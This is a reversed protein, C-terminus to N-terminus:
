LVQKCIPCTGEFIKKSKNNVKIWKVLCKLHFVHGCKTKTLDKNDCGLCISCNGDLCLEDDSDDYELLYNNSERNMGYLSPICEDCIYHNCDTMAVSIPQHCSSSWGLDEKNDANYIIIDDERRYIKGSIESSCRFCQERIPFDRKYKRTLYGLLAGKIIMQSKEIDM